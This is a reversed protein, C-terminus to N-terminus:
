PEQAAVTLRWETLGGANRLLRNLADLQDLQEPFRVADWVIRALVFGNEYNHFGVAVARECNHRKSWADVIDQARRQASLSRKFGAIVLGLGFSLSPEDIDNASGDTETTTCPFPRFANLTDVPRELEVEFVWALDWRARWDENQAYDSYYAQRVCRVSWRAVVATIGCSELCASVFPATGDKVIATNRMTVDFTVHTPDTVFPHWVNFGM